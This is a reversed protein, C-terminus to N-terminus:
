TLNAIRVTISVERRQTETGYLNLGCTAAADAATREVAVVGGHDARDNSLRRNARDRRRPGRGNPRLTPRVRRGALVSSSGYPAAQATTAPTPHPGRGGAGVPSRLGPGPASTM